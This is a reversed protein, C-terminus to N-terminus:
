LLRQRIFVRFPFFLWMAIWAPTHLLSSPTFPYSNYINVIYVAHIGIVCLLAIGRIFNFIDM